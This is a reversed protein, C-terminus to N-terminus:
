EDYEKEVAWYVVMFDDLADRDNAYKFGQWEAKAHQLEIVQEKRMRVITDGVFDGVEIPEMWEIYTM